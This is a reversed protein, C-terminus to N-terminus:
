YPRWRQSHPPMSPLPPEDYPAFPRRPNDPHSLYRQDRYRNSRDANRSDYHRTRHDPHQTTGFRDYNVMRDDRHVHQPHHDPNRQSGYDRNQFRNQHDKNRFQRDRISDRGGGRDLVMRELEQLSEGPLHQFASKLIEWASKREGFVECDAKLDAGYLVFLKCVDLWPVPLTRDERAFYELLARWPTSGCSQENPRLGERFLMAVTSPYVQLGAQYDTVMSAHASLGARYCTAYELLSRKGYIGKLSKTQRIADRVSLTLGNTFGFILLSKPLPAYAAGEYLDYLLMDLEMNSFYSKLEPNLERITLLLSELLATQAKGTSNEAQLAVYGFEFVSPQDVFRRPRGFNTVKLMLLTSRCLSESANFGRSSTLKLLRAWVDPKELYERVTLHLYQVYSSSLQTSGVAFQQVELLGACRSKLRPIMAEERRIIESETISGTKTKFVLDQDEDDAFSLAALTLPLPSQYMLQFLRSAQELYFVPSISKLMTSYLGELEPPLEQLRKQLDSLGDHNTLGESLSNVVLSVWLFVGSSTQVIESILSSSELPEQQALAYFKPHEELKDRVFRTIDGITLDQLRLKPFSDFHHEFALLPRSSLCIKVNSCTSFGKFFNSLELNDGDYEDLGDILFCYCTPITSQKILNCLTQKLENLSWARWPGWEEFRSLQHRSFSLTSHVLDPLVEQVLNPDQSFIQHLLSRFLGNQSKQMATGTSWFFFNPIMLPRSQTWTDLSKCLKRRNELLYRMLTSKGSAAKGSVWYITAGHEQELWSTFSDWPQNSAIESEFIWSYTNAHADLVQGYRDNMGPFTLSAIISSVVFEVQDNHFSQSKQSEIQISSRTEDATQRLLLQSEELRENFVADQHTLSTDFIDANDKLAQLM